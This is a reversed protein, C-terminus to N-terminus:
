GTRRLYAKQHTEVALFLIEKLNEEAITALAVKKPAKTPVNRQPGIESLYPRRIPYKAVVTNVDTNPRADANAGFRGARMMKRARSPTPIPPVGTAKEM